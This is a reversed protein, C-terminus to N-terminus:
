SVAVQTQVSPIPRQRLLLALGIALLLLPIAITYPAAPSIREFVLGGWIPGFILGLSNAATFLGL